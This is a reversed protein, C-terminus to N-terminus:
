LMSRLQVCVEKATPREELKGSWCAKILSKYEAKISADNPISPRLNSACVRFIVAHQNMGNYPFERSWFQWMCIGLSFIDAKATASKGKLLEPARYAYTGTLYSRVPTTPDKEAYQCCGFDTLKCIGQMSLMVNAPKLDLHVIEFQSIYDLASSIDLAFNVYRGFEITEDNDDIVQQLNRGEIFEQVIFREEANPNSATILRVINRHTFGYIEPLTESKFSQAAAKAKATRNIKKLAVRQGHYDAEYCTGFGGAGLTRRLDFEQLEVVNRIKIILDAVMKM